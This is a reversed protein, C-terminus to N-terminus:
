LLGTYCGPLADVARGAWFDELRPSSAPSPPLHAGKYALVTLSLVQPHEIGWLWSFPSRAELLAVGCGM